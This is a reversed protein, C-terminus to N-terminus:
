VLGIMDKKGSLFNVVAVEHIIHTQPAFLFILGEFCLIMTTTKLM